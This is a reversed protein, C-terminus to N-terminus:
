SIIKKFSITLYPKGKDPTMLEIIAIDGVDVEFARRFESPLEIRGHMTIKRKWFMRKIDLNM